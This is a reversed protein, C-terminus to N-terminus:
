RACRFGAFSSRYDPAQHGRESCRLYRVHCIWAGGRMTRHQRSDAFVEGEGGGGRRAYRSADYWDAVWEWVNGAMDLVGFPSAGTPFNGVPATGAFGNGIVNAHQPHFRDGWPYTRGDTGRAGKEWEAESPLRKNAWECYIRADEWSVGVVPHDSGSTQEPKWDPMRYGTAAVFASFQSNTVPCVDMYFADLSVEHVPKEDRDGSNSGMAFRGPPIWVAIGGDVESRIVLPEDQPIDM